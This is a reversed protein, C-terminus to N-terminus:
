PTRTPTARLTATVRPTATATRTASPAVTPTRTPRPTAAPVLATLAAAATPALEAPAEPSTLAQWDAAAEARQGLAEYARARWLRATAQEAADTTVTLVATLTKVARDAQDAALYARGLGLQAAVSQPAIRTAALFNSLAGEPRDTALLAEGNGLYADLLLPNDTNRQLEGIVANFDTRADEYRAAKLLLQGRTV